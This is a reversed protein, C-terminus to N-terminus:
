QIGPRTLNLVKFAPKRFYFRMSISLLLKGVKHNKPKLEKASRIHKRLWGGALRLGWVHCLAFSLSCYHIQLEVSSAGVARICLLWNKWRGIHRQLVPGRCRKKGSTFYLGYWWQNGRCYEGNHRIVMKCGIFICIWHKAKLKWSSWSSRLVLILFCWRRRTIISVFDLLSIWIIQQLLFWDTEYKGFIERFSLWTHGIIIDM